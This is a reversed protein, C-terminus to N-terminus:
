LGGRLGAMIVALRDGLGRPRLSIGRRWRALDRRALVAPLAAALAARPPTRAILGNAIEILTMSAAGDQPLLDRGVARLAPAARILLVIGTGTGIDDLAALDAPERAGLIRGAVRMLGGATGRMYDLFTALDAIPEAEAERADILAGLEATDFVGRDIADRLALAVPHKREAGEVVERWWHLRILALPPTSAVERARALEHNFAYLTFLDGRVAAPAFIAGMFRDPDARRVLAVLVPDIM